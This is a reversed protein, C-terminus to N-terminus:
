RAKRELRQAMAEAEARLQEWAQRYGPLTDIFAEWEPGPGGSSVCYPQVDDMVEELARRVSDKTTLRHQQWAQRYQQQAEAISLTM